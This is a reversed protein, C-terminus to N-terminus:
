KVKLKGRIEEISSIGNQKCYKEMGEIIKLLRQPDVFIGTGIQVASAGAIIYELADEATTIGGIGFIPVRVKQATKWVLAVGVPKIAPGSLGGTINALKPKRTRTDIAMGTLTNILSLADCGADVAARAIETIDTVNPSLKAVLFRSSAKRIKKLLNYACKANSGFHIGGHSVNPCSINIELGAIGEVDELREAVACYEKEAAGAVNVLIATNQLRLFPLKETIFSEVGVNALGISNLMGAATEVVRPGPNGQRPKLTVAKTFIAGLRNLPVLDSYERGYGFAGSAACVPNKLEIKGMRVRLDM